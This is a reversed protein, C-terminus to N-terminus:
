RVKDMWNSNIDEQGSNEIYTALDSVEEVYGGDESLKHENKFIFYKLIRMYRYDGNFSNVYSTTAAIIQEDTYKDGYKVFFKKLKLKIDRINGTWYLNTGPKKGKPFIAMLQTALNDIRDEISNIPKLAGDALVNMVKDHWAFTIKYEKGLLNSSEELIGRKILNKVVDEYSTDCSLLLITLLEPIELRYKKCVDEDIVYRIGM